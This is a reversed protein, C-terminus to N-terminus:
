SRPVVMVLRDYWLRDYTRTADLQWYKDLPATAPTYRAHRSGLPDSVYIAVLSWTGTRRPDATAEFGTMVVAHRGHKVLLGVPKGYRAVHWAAMRLATSKRDYAVWGYTVPMRLFDMVATAGISWGLPDSGRQVRDDLADVRQEYRLIALQNLDLDRHTIWNAMMAIAAATCTRSDVQREYGWPTYLDYRFVTAAQARPASATLLIPLVLAMAAALSARRVPPVHM